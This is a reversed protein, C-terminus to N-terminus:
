FVFGACALMLDCPHSELLILNWFCGALMMQLMQMLCPGAHGSTGIGTFCGALQRGCFSVVYTTAFKDFAQKRFQYDQERKRDAFCEWAM